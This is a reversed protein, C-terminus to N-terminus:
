SSRTPGIPSRSGRRRYLSRCYFGAAALVLTALTSPEPATAVAFNASGLLEQADGDIGGALSWTGYFVGRADTLPSAVAVSFLAINSTSAGGALSVPVNELFNTLGDTTFDNGALNLNFGNLYVVKPSQNTIKGTFSLLDGADAMQGGFQFEIVVGAQASAALFLAAMGMLVYNKM